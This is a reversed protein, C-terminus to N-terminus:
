SGSKKEFDELVQLMRRINSSYDRLILEGSSDIPVIANSTKALPILVPVM